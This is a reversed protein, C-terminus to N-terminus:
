QQEGRKLKQTHYSVEVPSAWELNDVHNNTSNGDIHRVWYRKNSEGALFTKAVLRSVPTSKSSVEDDYKISVRLQGGSLSQHKLCNNYTDYVRGHTSVLYRSAWVVEEWEEDEFGWEDGPFSLEENEEFEEEDEGEELELM